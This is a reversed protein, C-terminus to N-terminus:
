KTSSFFSSSTGYKRVVGKHRNIRRGEFGNCGCGDGIQTCYYLHENPDNEMGELPIIPRHSHYEREHGCTCFSNDYEDM